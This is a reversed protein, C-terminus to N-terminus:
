WGPGFRLDDLGHGVPCLLRNALPRESFALEDVHGRWPQGGELREVYEVRVAQWRWCCLGCIGLGGCPECGGGVGGLHLRDVEDDHAAYGDVLVAGPEAFACAVGVELDGQEGVGAQYGRLRGDRRRYVLELDDIFGQGFQLVVEAHVGDNRGLADDPTLV